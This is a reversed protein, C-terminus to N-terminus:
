DCHTVGAQAPINISKKGKMKAFVPGLVAIRKYVLPLSVGDNMSFM